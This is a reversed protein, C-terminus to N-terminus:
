KSITHLIEKELDEVKHLIKKAGAKQLEEVTRFGWSVALCELGANCATAVDVESDGVYVAEEKNVQLKKLCELVSDAAPKRRIGQREGCAFDILGAFYQQCLPQVAFDPKNSVIAIKIGQRRLSAFMELIGKYPKTALACHEKYYDGYVPMIRDILEDNDGFINEWIWRSGNGLYHILESYSRKEYGFEALTHNVADCIDQLTNLVTGDMDFIALKINM